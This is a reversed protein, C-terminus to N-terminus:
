EFHCTKNKAFIAILIGFEGFNDGELIILPLHPIAVSECCLLPLWNKYKAAAYCPAMALSCYLSLPFLLEVFLLKRDGENVRNDINLTM